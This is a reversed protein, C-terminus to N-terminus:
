RFIYGSFVPTSSAVPGPDCSASWRSTGHAMAVGVGGPGLCLDEPAVSASLGRSYWLLHRWSWMLSCAQVCPSGDGKRRLSLCIAMKLHNRAGSQLLERIMLWAAVERPGGCRILSAVAAM